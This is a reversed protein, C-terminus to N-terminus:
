RLIGPGLSFDLTSAWSVADGPAGEDTDEPGGGAEEDDEGGGGGGRGRGGEREGGEGEEDMDPVLYYQLPNSLREQNM